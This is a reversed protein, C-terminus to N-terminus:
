RHPKLCTLKPSNKSRYFPITWSLHDKLHSRFVLNQPELLKSIIWFFIPIWALNILWSTISAWRKLVMLYNYQSQLLGLCNTLNGISFLQFSLKKACTSCNITQTFINNDGETLKWKLYIIKIKVSM